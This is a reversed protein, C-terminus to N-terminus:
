PGVVGLQEQGLAELLLDLQADTIGFPYRAFRAVRAREDAPPPSGRLRDDGLVETFTVESIAPYTFLTLRQRWLVMLGDERVAVLEGKARLEQGGRLYTVSSATGTPRSATSVSEVTTGVPCGALFTTAALVGLVSRQHHRM